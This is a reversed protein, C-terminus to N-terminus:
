ILEHDAIVATFGKEKFREIAREAGSIPTNSIVAYIHGNKGLGLQDNQRVVKALRLAEEKKDKEPINDFRLALFETLKKEAAQDFIDVLRRFPERLLVTTDEYTQEHRVAQYYHRARLVSDQTLRCAVTLLNAQGMTMKEIPLTWVMVIFRISEGEYVAYAMAPYKRNWKRNVYTQLKQFSEYMEEEKAYEFSNGLQRALESTATFLRAFRVNNPVIYIAIDNSGMITRIAETAKFLVDVSHFSDINSTIQYIKGISEEHNILQLELADKERSNSSNIERIDQIQNTLYEQDNLAEEKQDNLRDKLYGVSLGVIFLQAMWVYTSYDLFIHAGQRTLIQPLLLGLIALFASVTAQVQGHTLAFLLVYLLYIDIQSFFSSEAIYPHIFYLLVFCAANELFPVAARFFRSAREKLEKRRLTKRDEQALFIDRHRVMHRVTERVSSELDVLRTIGFEKKFRNVNLLAHVEQSAPKEKDKSSFAKEAKEAEPNGRWGIKEIEDQIWGNLEQDTITVGSSIHYLPYAHRESLAVKTIFFCADSEHILMRQWNTELPADSRRLANLCVRSVDDQAEELSAPMHFYGGLRLTIIDAQQSQRFKECLNEAEILTMGRLDLANTVDNESFLGAHAYGFVADSSIFVFRGKQLMSFANLINMVSSIFDVSDKQANIWKFNSDYAGTFITVDPSVSEFVEVLQNNTYPFHYHEFVREYKQNSYYSGTIVSIRHGEKNLNMILRRSFSNNGGILLINM